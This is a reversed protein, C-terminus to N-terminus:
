NVKIQSSKAQNRWGPPAGAAGEQRLSNSAEDHKNGKEIRVAVRVGRAEGRRRLKRMGFEARMARSRLRGKPIARKAGGFVAVQRSQDKRKLTPSAAGVNAAREALTILWILSIGSISFITDSHLRRPKM